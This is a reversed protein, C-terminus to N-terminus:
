KWKKPPKHAIKPFEMLDSRSLTQAGLLNQRRQSKELSFATM